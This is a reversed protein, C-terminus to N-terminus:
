HRHSKIFTSNKWLPTEISKNIKEERHFRSGTVAVQTGAKVASLRECDWWATHRKTVNNSISDLALVIHSRYTTNNADNLGMSHFVSSLRLENFICQTLCVSFMDEEAPPGLLCLWGRRQGLCSRCLVACCVAGCLCSPCLSFIVTESKDGEDYTPWSTQEWVVLSTYTCVCYM